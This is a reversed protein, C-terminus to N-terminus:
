DRLHALSVAVGRLCLMDQHPQQASTRRALGELLTQVTGAAEPDSPSQVKQLLLGRMARATDDPLESLETRSAEQLMLRVDEWPVIHGCPFKAFVTMLMLIESSLFSNNRIDMLLLFLFRNWPQSAVHFAVDQSKTHLFDLLAELCGVVAATLMRDKQLLLNQLGIVLSFVQRTSLPALCADEPHPLPDPKSGTVLVSTSSFDQRLATRLFRLISALFLGDKKEWFILIKLIKDLAVSLTQHVELGGILRQDSLSAALLWASCLLGSEPPRPRRIPVASQGAWTLELVKQLLKLMSVGSLLVAMARKRSEPTTRHLSWYLINFAAQLIEVDGPQCKGCLNSVQHLLKLDTGDLEKKAENKLQVLFLLELLLPLNRSAQLPAPGSELLLQQLIQLFHNYLLSEGLADTNKRLFNTLVLLVRHAVDMPSSCVLDLLILLVSSNDKLISLLTTLSTSSNSWTSFSPLAAGEAEPLNSEEWSFWLELFRHGYVSMLEPHQLFLRLLPAHHTYVLGLDSIGELAKRIVKLLVLDFAEEKKQCVALLYLIARSVPAPPYEGHDLVSLLFGRLASFLELDPVFRDKNVHATYFLLVLCYQQQRSAEDVRLFDTLHTLHKPGRNNVLPLNQQLLEAVEALEKQSPPRTKLEASYLHFCVGFLFKSCAQNLDPNSQGYCFKGKLELALRIFKSSALKRSIKEGKHPVLTFLSGLIWMFVEMLAPLTAKESHRLVMPICFTDCVSLLFESFTKPTDEKETSPATFPNEQALPDNQFEMALRCANRFGELVNILFAGQHQLARKVDRSMPHDQALLDRETSPLDWRISPRWTGTLPPLDSCRRLMAEILAQLEQYPVPPFSVHDKRLFAAAAKIGEAAAELVPCSVAERLVDSADKCIAMNTFLKIEVPQRKLIEAFLLLGQSHLETNNLKLVEKLSRVLSEIGYVSHCKSFFLREETLLLLCRYVSLILSESTSSLHEFLFEPIDAQIFASAYRATSHLLVATMCNTSAVQLTEDRSLLLKKLVLTLPNSEQAVAGDDPSGGPGSKSMIVSVFLDNKLLQNLFGIGNVQLEKTQANDLTALFLACLKERFFELLREATAPSSFLKGYLYCAAAKVKDNPYMLCKQLYEIIPGHEIVLTQALAPIANLLKGLLMLTPVSSRTSSMNCLKKQCVDLVYYVFRQSKLEMLIQVLVKISLDLIGHDDLSHLIGLLTGMFHLCIREDQSFLHTVLSTNRILDDWLCSLTHKKRVLSVQGDRLLDLACALCLGSPPPLLWRVDHQRHSRESLLSQSPSSGTEEEPGSQGAM